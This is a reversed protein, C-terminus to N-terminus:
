FYTQVFGPNLAVNREGEAVAQEPRGELRLLYVKYAHAYPDDPNIALLTTLDENARRLDGERDASQGHDVGDLLWVARVGLAIVNQPDLRLAEDCPKFLEASKKPDVAEAAYDGARAACLLALAM